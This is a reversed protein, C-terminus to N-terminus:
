VTERYHHLSDAEVDVAIRTEARLEDALAHLQQDDELIAYKVSGM